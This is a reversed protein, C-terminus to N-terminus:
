EIREDSREDRGLITRLRAIITVITIGLLTLGMLEPSVTKEIMGRVEPMGVVEATASILTIIAAGLAVVYSWLITASGMSADLMRNWISGEARVFLTIWVIVMTLLVGVPVLVVLADIVARM